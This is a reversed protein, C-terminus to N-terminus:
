IRRTEGSCSNTINLATIRGATKRKMMVKIEDKKRKEKKNTFVLRPSNAEINITPIKIRRRKSIRLMKWERRSREIIKSM